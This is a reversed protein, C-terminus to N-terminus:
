VEVEKVTIFTRTGVGMKEALSLYEDSFVEEDREQLEKRIINATIADLAVPDHSLFLRKPSKNEFTQWKQPMGGKKALRGFLADMVILRTKSKIDPHANIAAIAEHIIPPHLYKPYGMGDGFRVTGYHNKLAGTALIFQHSQLIPLNIIHKVKTLCKPLYCQVPDGNDNEVRVPMDIKKSYDPTSLNEFTHHKIRRWLSSGLGEVYQVDRDVKDRYFNPIARSCDYIIIQKGMVGLYNNLGDVIAKILTPSTLFGRFEAYIDNLNPKVAILDHKTYSRFLHNWAAEPKTTNTLAMLGTDLMTKVKQYDIFDVYPYSKYDWSTVNNSHVSIVKSNRGLTKQPDKIQSKPKGVIITGAANARKRILLSSIFVSTVTLFKRRNM